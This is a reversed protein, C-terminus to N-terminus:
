TMIFTASGPLCGTTPIGSARFHSRPLIRERMVTCSICKRSLLKRCDRMPCLLGLDWGTIRGTRRMPRWFRRKRRFIPLPGKKGEEVLRSEQEQEATDIGVALSLGEATVSKEGCLVASMNGSYHQVVTFCDGEQRQICSEYKWNKLPRLRPSELDWGLAQVTLERGAEGYLEMSLINVCSDLWIRGEVKRTGDLELILRTQAKELDTESRFATVKGPLELEIALAPLRTRGIAEEFINTDVVYNPDGSLYNEKHQLIQNFVAKPEDPLTERLEWLGVHDISMCLKGDRSYLVAGMKGNGWFPGECFQYPIRDLIMKRKMNMVM